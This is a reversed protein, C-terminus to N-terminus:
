RTNVTPRKLTPELGVEEEFFDSRSALQYGGDDPGHSGHEYGVKGAGAFVQRTVFFPLMYQVIRAFPVSRDMLYNEHTGYSNGKRDSTNKYVVIDHGNPLVQLAAQM